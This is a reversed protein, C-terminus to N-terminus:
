SPQGEAQHAHSFYIKPKKCTAVSFSKRFAICFTILAYAFNLAVGFYM